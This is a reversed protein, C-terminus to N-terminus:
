IIRLWKGCVHPRQSKTVNGVHPSEADPQYGFKDTEKCCWSKLTWFNKCDSRELIGDREIRRLRENIM